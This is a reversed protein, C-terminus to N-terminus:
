FTCAVGISAEPRSAREALPSDKAAGALRKLGVDAFVAWREDPSHREFLSGGHANVGSEADFARYRSGPAQACTVGFYAENYREDGREVDAM